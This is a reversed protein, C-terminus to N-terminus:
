IALDRFGIFLFNQLSDRPRDRLWYSVRGMFRGEAPTDLVSRLIYKVVSVELGELHCIGNGPRRGHGHWSRGDVHRARGGPWARVIERPGPGQTASHDSRFSTSHPM